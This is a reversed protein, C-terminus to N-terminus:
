RSFVAHKLFFVSVTCNGSTVRAVPRSGKGQVFMGKGDVPLQYFASHCFVRTLDLDPGDYSHLRSSVDLLRKPHASM